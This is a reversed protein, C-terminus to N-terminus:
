KKKTRKEKKKNKKEIKQQELLKTLKSDNMQM